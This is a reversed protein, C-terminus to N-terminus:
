LISNCRKYQTSRVHMTSKGLQVLTDSSVIIDRDGEGKCGETSHLNSLKLHDDHTNKKVSPNQSFYIYNGLKYKMHKKM